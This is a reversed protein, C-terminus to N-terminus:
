KALERLTNRYRAMISEAAEIKAEFTPDYATIRYSGGADEVLFLREGEGSKLRAVVDKPLIVGLSNGFRRVKLEVM